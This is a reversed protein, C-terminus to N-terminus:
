DSILEEATASDGSRRAAGVKQSLDNVAARIGDREATFERLKGDLQMAEDLQRLIEPKGRRALASRVADPQSRLVKVDIVIV